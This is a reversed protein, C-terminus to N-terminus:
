GPVQLRRSARNDDSKLGLDPVPVVHGCDDPGMFFAFIPNQAIRRLQDDGVCRFVRAGAVTLM